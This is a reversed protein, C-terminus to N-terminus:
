IGEGAEWYRPRVDPDHIGRDMYFRALDGMLIHLLLEDYDRLHEAVYPAFEPLKSELNAVAEAANVGTCESSSASSRLANLLAPLSSLSAVQAAPPPTPSVTEGVNSVVLST